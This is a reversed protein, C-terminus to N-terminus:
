TFRGVQDYTWRLLIFMNLDIIVGYAKKFQCLFFVGVATIHQCQQWSVSVRDLRPSM